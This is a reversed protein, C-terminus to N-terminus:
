GHDATIYRSTIVGSAITVPVGGGLHTSSGALYLNKVARSRANPRFMALSTMDSFLGYISGQPSLLRREFDLPTSVELYTIHDRVGPLVAKELNKLSEEKYWDKIRDWNDGVPAYPAPANCMFNLVHHGEPALSPDAETPWCVLSMASNPILDKTYYDNWVENMMDISGTVVTHHAELDPKTDLGVYIMPCPMSHRYSDIAKVAWSPLNDTGIMKLYAVKANVNSVVVKSTIETGDELLVGRVAGGDVLIKEVKQGTRVELGQEQGAKMMAEPIAIMGGRPYFIGLHETLAIFGFIGSGIEPPAGAFYSQFAVSAQIIPNKYYSRTVAQHTRLLLPMFKMVNPNKMTMSMAEGMTNMPALMMSDMMEDMKDLAVDCFRKWGEVDEPAIKEIVRTTEDIDTPYSFRQGDPTIFSYIPDCPILEIYDERKKGMLEFFRDMPQLIEVISAGVDFKYGETEFTSCCGGIIDSQELVLTKFGEKALLAATSLGGLGAGVTIVDYDAM